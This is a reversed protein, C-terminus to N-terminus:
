DSADREGIDDPAAGHSHSDDQTKAETPMRPMETKADRGAYGAIGPDPDGVGQQEATEDSAVNPNPEDQGFPAQPEETRITEVAEGGKESSETM